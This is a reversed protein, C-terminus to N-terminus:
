EKTHKGQDDYDDLRQGADYGRYRQALVVHLISMLMFACILILPTVQHSKERGNESLLTIMVIVHTDNEWVM